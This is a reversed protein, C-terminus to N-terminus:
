RDIHARKELTVVNHGHVRAYRVDDVADRLLLLGVAGIARDPAPRTPDFPPGADIVTVRYADPERAVDVSLPGTRAGYTHTVVTACLADTAHVLADRTVADAPACADAVHARVMALDVPAAATLALRRGNPFPWSVNM